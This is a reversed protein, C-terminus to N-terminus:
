CTASKLYAPGIHIAADHLNNAGVAVEVPVMPQVKYALCTEVFHRFTANDMNMHLQMTDIPAVSSDARVRVVRLTSLRTTINHAHVFMKLFSEGNNIASFNGAMSRDRFAIGRMLYPTIVRLSGYAARDNYGAWHQFNPVWMNQLGHHGAAFLREEEVIEPLYRPLDIDSVVATDPRLVVVADYSFNQARSYRAIMSHATRMSHFAALLNRVSQLDDHFLDVKDPPFEARAEKYLSLETPIIVSQSAVNLVCPRKQAFETSDLTLNREGSRKNNIHGADLGSWFVDYVIGNKDLVEFVHREISPLTVHLSRSLGYFAVAVRYGKSGEDACRPVEIGFVVLLELVIYVALWLSLQKPSFLMASVGQFKHKDTGSKIEARSQPVQRCM